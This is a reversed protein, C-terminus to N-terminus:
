RRSGNTLHVRRSGIVPTEDIKGVSNITGPLNGGHEVAPVGVMRGVVQTGAKASNASRRWCLPMLVFGCQNPGDVRQPHAPLSRTSCMRRAAPGAPLVSEDRTRTRQNGTGGIPSAVLPCVRTEC